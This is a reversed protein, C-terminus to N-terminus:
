EKKEQTIEKWLNIGPHFVDFEMWHDGSQDIFDSRFDNDGPNGKKRRTYGSMFLPEIGSTTGHKGESLYAMMSTTGTPATTLIAINRRGHESMDKYLRPDDEKIRLLFPNDKEKKNDWIPFPGLEKAMNVSSTYCGLKLTKYIQETFEISKKSGYKIGLAAM